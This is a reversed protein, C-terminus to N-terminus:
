CYVSSLSRIVFVIWVGSAVCLRNNWNRRQLESTSREIKKCMEYLALVLILMIEKTEDVESETEYRDSSENSNMIEKTM